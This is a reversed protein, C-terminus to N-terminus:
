LIRTLSFGIDYVVSAGVTRSVFAGWRQVYAFLVITAAKKAVDTHTHHSKQRQSCRIAIDTYIGHIDFDLPSSSDIEICRM